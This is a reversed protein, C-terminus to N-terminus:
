EQPCFCADSLTCPTSLLRTLRAPWASIPHLADGSLCSPLHKSFCQLAVAGWGGVAWFKNVQSSAAKFFTLILKWTLLYGLVYCFDESLPKVTVIQGVPVCGLVNELLEEQSSLLSMLAAPPSRPFLTVCSWEGTEFM